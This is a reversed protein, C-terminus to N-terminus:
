WGLAVYIYSQGNKNPDYDAGGDDVTFGDSDLSILRDAVWYAAATGGYGTQFLVQARDAPFDTTRIHYAIGADVDGFDRFIYVVKPPFGIGTIAQSTTGDGTYTGTKIKHVPIIEIEVLEIM